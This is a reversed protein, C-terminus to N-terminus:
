YIGPILRHPTLREYEQYPVGVQRRLLQEEIRIRLPLPLVVALLSCLAIWTGAILQLGLLSLLIGVYGPHRIFRYPGSSVIAQGHEAVPTLTYLRGLSHMAFARLAIGACGCVVGILLGSWGLSLRGIGCAPSMVGALLALATGLVMAQDTMRAAPGAEPSAPPKLWVEVGVMAGCVMLYAIIRVIEQGSAM